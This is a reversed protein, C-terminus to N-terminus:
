PKCYDESQKGAYNLYLSWNGKCFISIYNIFCGWCKLLMNIKLFITISALTYHHRKLCTIPLLSRPLTAPGSHFSKATNANSGLSIFTLIDLMWQWWWSVRAGAMCRLCHRSKPPPFSIPFASGELSPSSYNFWNYFTFFGHSIVDQGTKFVSLVFVWFTVRLARSLRGMRVQAPQEMHTDPRPLHSPSTCIQARPNWLSM